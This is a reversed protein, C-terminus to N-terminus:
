VAAFCRAAPLPRQVSVQGGGAAAALAAGLEDRLRAEAAALLLPVREPSARPPITEILAALEM